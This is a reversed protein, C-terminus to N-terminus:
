ARPSTNDGTEQAEGERIRAEIEALDKELQAANAGTYAQARLLMAISQASLNVARLATLNAEYDDTGKTERLSRLYRASTVRILEIEATLDAAPLEDLLKQERSLFTSSYFGHKRANQNGPQAGKTRKSKMTEAGKALVFAGQAAYEKAFFV